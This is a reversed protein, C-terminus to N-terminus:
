KLEMISDIERLVTALDPPNAAIVDSESGKHKHHPFTPLHPFHPSNDYRFVLAGDPKLYQYVHMYREVVDEANIYERLHLISGDAFYLSGRLFGIYATRKDYTVSSGRLHATADIVSAIRRFYDEIM